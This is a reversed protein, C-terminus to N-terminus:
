WRSRRTVIWEGVPLEPDTGNDPIYRLIPVNDIVTMDRVMWERQAAPQHLDYTLAALTRRQQQSLTDQQGVEEMLTQLAHIRIQETHRFPSPPGVTPGHRLRAKSVADDQQQTDLTM